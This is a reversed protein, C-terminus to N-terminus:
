DSDFFSSTLSKNAPCRELQLGFDKAIQGWYTSDEKLKRSLQGLSIREQMTLYPFVEHAVVASPLSFFHVMDIKLNHASL